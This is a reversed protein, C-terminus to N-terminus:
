HERPDGVKESFSVPDLALEARATHRGNVQRVVEFVVARDRDLEQAVLQGRRDPRLAKKELDLGRRAEGVRVNQREV